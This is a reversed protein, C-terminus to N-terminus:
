IYRWYAKEGAQFCKQRAKLGNRSDRRREETQDDTIFPSSEDLVAGNLLGVRPTESGCVQHIAESKESEPISFGSLSTYRLLQSHDGRSVDDELNLFPFTATHTM